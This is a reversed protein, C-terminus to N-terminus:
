AVKWGNCVEQLYSSHCKGSISVGVLGVGVGSAITLGGQPCRGEKGSCIM